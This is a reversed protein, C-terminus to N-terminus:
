GRITTGSVARASSPRLRVLRRRHLGVSIAIAAENSLEMVENDVLYFEPYAYYLVCLLAFGTVWTAYSEWKFWTLHEPLEAPAVMYKRVHYFGGGHM